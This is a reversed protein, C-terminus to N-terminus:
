VEMRGLTAMDEDLKRTMQILKELAKLIYPQAEPCTKWHTLRIQESTKTEPWDAASTAICNRCYICTVRRVVGSSGWVTTHDVARSTPNERRYEKVVPHM